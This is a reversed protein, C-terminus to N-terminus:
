QLSQIFLRWESENSHGKSIEMIYVNMKEQNSKDLVTMMILSGHHYVRKQSFVYKGM